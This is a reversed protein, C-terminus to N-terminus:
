HNNLLSLVCVCVFGEWLEYASGCKEKFFFSLLIKYYKNPIHKIWIVIRQCMCVHAKTSFM